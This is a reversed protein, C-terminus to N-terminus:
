SASISATAYMPLFNVLGIGAATASVVIVGRTGATVPITLGTTIGNSITGIADVGTLPPAAIVLAGPVPTFTNDPTTSTYLQATVTVTTSVLALAGTTSSFLTISQITEDTPFTQAPVVEGPGGTQDLVSGQLSGTGAQDGDLPLVAVQGTLGGAMTTLVVPDGSSAAYVITGAGEPGPNGQPGPPGESGQPGVPGTSGPPGAAGAPGAPGQPGEKGEPGPSGGGTGSPGQKGEPGAKGEPGVAGVKGEPGAAGTAGKSGTAGKAGGAGAAGTLGREGEGFSIKRQGGPCAAGATTLNLTKYRGAVCAYYRKATSSGTAALVSVTSGIMVALVVAVFVSRRRWLVQPRKDM